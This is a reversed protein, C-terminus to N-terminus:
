MNLAFKETCLLIQPSIGGFAGGHSRTRTCKTQRPSFLRFEANENLVHVCYARRRRARLSTRAFHVASCVAKTRIALSCVPLSRFVRSSVLSMQHEKGIMQNRLEEDVVTVPPYSFRNVIAMEMMVAFLLFVKSLELNATLKRPILRSSEAKTM